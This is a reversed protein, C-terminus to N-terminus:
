LSSYGDTLLSSVPIRRSKLCNEKGPPMGDCTAGSVGPDM